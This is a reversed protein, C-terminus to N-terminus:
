KAGLGCDEAIMAENVLKCIKSCVHQSARTVTSESVGTELATKTGNLGNSVYHRWILLKDEKFRGYFHLDKYGPSMLAYVIRLAIAERRREDASEPTQRTPQRLADKAAKRRTDQESADKDILNRLACKCRWMLVSRFHCSPPNWDIGRKKRICDLVKAFADKSLDPRGQNNLFDLCPKEYKDHFHQWQSDSDHDTKGIQPSKVSTTPFPVYDGM